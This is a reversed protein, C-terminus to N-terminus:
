KPLSKGPTAKVEAARSQLAWALNNKALQYDPAIRLARTCASIGEDWHSMANHAACLNNLAIADDPRIKLVAESMAAAEAFKKENFLAVTNGIMEDARLASRHKDFRSEGTWDKTLLVPVLYAVVVAGVCMLVWRWRVRPTTPCLDADAM